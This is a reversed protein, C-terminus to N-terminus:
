AIMEMVTGALAARAAFSSMITDATVVRLGAASIRGRLAEDRADLVFVDLFDQYLTSVGAASAELGLQRMMAAAPGKLAEGAVIPSIAAITAKTGRLASRVGPVALIPGISILPNSPCIVVADAERIADVVGEAPTAADIGSFTIGTVQPECRRRVFYDQFALTGETTQVLTPVPVETMPLIRAAVNNQRGLCATIEALSDGQQLRHTRYIHTAMDRDGLAFWTEIGLAQLRDLCHFTEDRVGWGTGPNDLGALTYTVTDIDPCIYLGLWRFDDGTNVIVTVQEPPLVRVLGSLFRAAGIGGALATVRM